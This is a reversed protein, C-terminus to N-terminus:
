VSAVTETLRGRLYSLTFVDDAACPLGTM